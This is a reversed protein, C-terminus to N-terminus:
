SAAWARVRSVITGPRARAGMTAPREVRRTPRRASARLEPRLCGGPPLRRGGRLYDTARGRLRWGSLHREAHLPQRRFLANRGAFQSHVHRDPRRQRIRASHRPRHRRGRRRDIGHWDPPRGCPVRTKCRDRRDAQSRQQVLRREHHGDRDRLDRHSPWGPAQGNATAVQVRDRASLAGAIRVISSGQAIFHTDDDLSLSQFQYTGGSLKLTGKAAVTVAGFRGAALTQSGGLPVNVATTGPSVAAPAPVPPPAIFPGRTGTQANPADIQTANVNGTAARDRLIVKPALLEFGLAIKTDFGATLTNLTSTGSAAVGLHGGTVTSRDDFSISHKALVVFTGVPPAVTIAATRTEVVERDHQRDACVLLTALSAVLVVGVFPKIAKM